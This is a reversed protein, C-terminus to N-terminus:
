SSRISDHAEEVLKELKNVVWGIRFVDHEHIRFNRQNSKRWCGVRRLAEYCQMIELDKGKFVKM